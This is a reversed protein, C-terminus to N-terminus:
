RRASDVRLRVAYTGPKAGVARALRAIAELALDTDIRTGPVVLLLREDRALLVEGHQWVQHARVRIVDAAVPEPYADDVALLDCPLPEQEPAALAGAV